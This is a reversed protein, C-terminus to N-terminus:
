VANSVWGGVWERGGRFLVCLVDLEELHVAPVRLLVLLGVQGGVGDVEVVAARHDEVGEELDLVLLVGSQGKAAGATFPVDKRGGVWGNM